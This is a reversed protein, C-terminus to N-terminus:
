FDGLTKKPGPSDSEEELGNEKQYEHLSDMKTEELLDRKMKEVMTEAVVKELDEDVKMSEIGDTVNINVAEMAIEAKAEHFATESNLKEIWSDTDDEQSMENMANTIRTQGRLGKVKELFDKRLELDRKFEEKMKKRKEEGSLNRDEM